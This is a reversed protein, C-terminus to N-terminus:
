LIGRSRELLLGLGARGGEPLKLALGSRRAPRSGSRRRARSAAATQPRKAAFGGGSARLPTSPRRACDTTAVLRQLAAAPVSQGRGPLHASGGAGGEISRRRSPASASLPRVGAFTSDLPRAANPIKMAGPPSRDAARWWSGVEADDPVEGYWAYFGAASTPVALGREERDERWDRPRRGRHRHRRAQARAAVSQSAQSAEYAVEAETLFNSAGLARLPADAASAPRRGAASRHVGGRPDLLCTSLEATLEGRAARTRLEGRVALARPSPALGM